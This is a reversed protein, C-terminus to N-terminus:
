TPKKTLEDRIDLLVELIVKLLRQNHRHGIIDYNEDYGPLEEPVDKEITERDRM